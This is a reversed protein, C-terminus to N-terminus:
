LPVEAGVLLEVKINPFSVEEYDHEPNMFDDMPTVKQGLQESLADLFRDTDRSRPPRSFTFLKKRRNPPSSMIEMKQSSPSPSSDLSVYPHSDSNTPSPENPPPCFCSQVPLPETQRLMLRRSGSAFLLFLLNM